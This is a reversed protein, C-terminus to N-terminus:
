LWLRRPSHPNFDIHLYGNKDLTRWLRRPSHPNFNLSGIRWGASTPWLRRPSHPNFDLSLLCFEFLLHWLRRPSHPNFDAAGNIAYGAPWDCDALVTHISIVLPVCWCLNYEDCDALVTHISIIRSLTSNPSIITVTQSSQTSQFRIIIRLQIRPAADCDALVTHISISFSCSGKEQISRWLRRPSHPNFNKWVDAPSLTM